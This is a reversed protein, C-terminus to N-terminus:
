ICVQWLYVVHCSIGFVFQIAFLCSIGFVSQIAILDHWLIGFVFQIAFVFHFFLHLALSLSYLRHSHADIRGFWKEWSLFTRLNHHTFLPYPCDIRICTTQVASCPLTTCGTDMSRRSPQVRVISFTEESHSQLHGQRPMTARHPSCGSLWSQRVFVQHTKEMLHWISLFRHFGSHLMFLSWGKPAATFALM